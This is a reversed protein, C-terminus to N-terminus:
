SHTLDSTLLFSCCLGQRTQAYMGNVFDGHYREQILTGPNWTFTGVGNRQDKDWEGEYINGDAYWMTGVGKKVNHVWQGTYKHGTGLAKFTGHGHAEDQVWDGKYTNGNGWIYLGIGHKVGWRHVCVCVCVCM